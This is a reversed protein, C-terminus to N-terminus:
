LYCQYSLPRKLPHNSLSNNKARKQIITNCDPFFLRKKENQNWSIQKTYLTFLIKHNGSFISM